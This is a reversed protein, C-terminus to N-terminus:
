AIRVVADCAVGVFGFKRFVRAMATHQIIFGMLGQAVPFALLPWQGGVGDGSINAASFRLSVKAVEPERIRM